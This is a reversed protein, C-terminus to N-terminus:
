DVSYGRAVMCATFGRKFTSIQQNHQAEAQAHAQEQQNVAAQAGEEKAEENARRQRRGGAVTGVTGGIAAGKGAGGAIAGIVAGGAAGKAAGKARGGRADPAEEAGQQAAASQDAASPAKPTAQEPNIGTQQQVSNYCDSEDILQQDHSQNAKPYVFMGLKQAASFSPVPKTPAPAQASTSTQPPSTPSESRKCGAPMLLFLPVGYVLTLRCLQRGLGLEKKWTVHKFDRRTM